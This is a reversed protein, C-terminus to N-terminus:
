YEQTTLVQHLLNSFRKIFKEDKSLDIYDLRTLIFHILEHLFTCEINTEKIKNGDSFDSLLIKDQNLLALGYSNEKDCENNNYEITITSGFLKVKKPIKM